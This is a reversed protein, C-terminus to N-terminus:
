RKPPRRVTPPWSSSGQHCGTQEDDSPVEIDGTAAGNQCAVPVPYRQDSVKEKGHRNRTSARSSRHQDPGTENDDQHRDIVGAEARNQCAVPM